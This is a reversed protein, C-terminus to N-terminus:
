GGEDEGPLGHATVILSGWGDNIPTVLRLNLANAGESNPQDEEIM